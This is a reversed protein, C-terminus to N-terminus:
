WGPYLCWTPPTLDPKTHAINNTSWRAGRSPNSAFFLHSVLKHERRTRQPHSHHARELTLSSCSLYRPRRDETSSRARGVESSCPRAHRSHAEWAGKPSHKLTPNSSSEDLALIASKTQSSAWTTFLLLSKSCPVQLRCSTTRETAPRVTILVQRM